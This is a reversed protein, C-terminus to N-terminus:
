SDRLRFVFISVSTATNPALSAGVPIVTKEHKSSTKPRSFSKFIESSQRKAASRKSAPKEETDRLGEIKTELAVAAKSETLNDSSSSGVFPKLAKKDGESISQNRSSIKMNASVPPM